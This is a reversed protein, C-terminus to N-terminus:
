YTSITQIFDDIKTSMGGVLVGDVASLDLISHCNSTNVSGGYLFTLNKAYKLLIHAKLSSITESIEHLEPVIGSGIAWIPEYAIIVNDLNKDQKVTENLAFDIQNKLFNLAEGSQAVQLSDGICLVVKLNADLANIVKQIVITDSDCFARRESHGIIVYNVGIDVLMQSSVEGTSAVQSFHSVNQAGIYVNEVASLNKVLTNLYVFPPCIVVNLKDSIQTAQVQECFDAVFSASGFMKWNAFVFKKNLSKM